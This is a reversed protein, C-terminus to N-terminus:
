RDLAARRPAAIPAPNNLALDFSFGIRPGSSEWAPM